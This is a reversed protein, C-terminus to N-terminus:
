RTQRLLRLVACLRELAPEFLANLQGIAAGDGNRAAAEIHACLQTLSACGAMRATGKIRHALTGAAAWDQEACRARYGALDSLGTDTLSDILEAVVASDGDVLDHLVRPIAACEADDPLRYGASLLAHLLDPEAASPASHAGAGVGAAGPASIWLRIPAAAVAPPLTGPTAQPAERDWVVVRPTVPYGSLIAEDACTEVTLGLGTLRAALERLRSPDRGIVLALNM